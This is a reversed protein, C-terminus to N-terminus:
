RNFQMLYIRMLKEMDKALVILFPQKKSQLRNPLYPTKTIRRTGPGVFISAVQIIAYGLWHARSKANGHVVDRNWSESLAQKIAKESQV